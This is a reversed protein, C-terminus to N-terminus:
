WARSTKSQSGSSQRPLKARYAEKAKRDKAMLRVHNTGHKRMEAVALCRGLYGLILDVTKWGLIKPKKYGIIEGKGNRMPVKSPTSVRWQYWAEVQETELKKLPVKGLKDFVHLELNALAQTAYEISAEKAIVHECCYRCWSEVTWSSQPSVSKLSEKFARAEDDAVEAAKHKAQAPIPWAGQLSQRHISEGAQAPSIWQLIVLSDVCLTPKKDPVAKVQSRPEVALPRPM